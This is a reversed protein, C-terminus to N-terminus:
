GGRVGVGVCMGCAKFAVWSPSASLMSTTVEGGCKGWVEEWM